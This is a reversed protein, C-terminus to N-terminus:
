GCNTFHKFRPERNAFFPGYRGFFVKGHDSELSVFTTHSVVCMISAGSLRLDAGTAWGSATPPHPHHWQHVSPESLITLYTLHLPHHCVVSIIYLPIQAWPVM